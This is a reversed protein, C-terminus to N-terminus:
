EENCLKKPETRLSSVCSMTLLTDLNQKFIVCHEGVQPLKNPLHICSDKGMQPISHSMALYGTIHAESPALARVTIAEGWLETTKVIGHTTHQLEDTSQFLVVLETASYYLVGLQHTHGKM